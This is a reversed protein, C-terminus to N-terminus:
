ANEYVKGFTNEYEPDHPIEYDRLSTYESDTDCMTRPDLAQYESDASQTGSAGPRPSVTAPAQPSGTPPRSDQPDVMEYEDNSTERQRTARRRKFIFFAAVVVSVLLVASTISVPVAWVLVSQGHGAKTETSCYPTPIDFAGNKQCQLTVNQGNQCTVTAQQGVNVAFNGGHNPSVSIVNDIVDVHGCHRVGKYRLIFGETQQARQPGAQFQLSINSSVSVYETMSTGNLVTVIMQKSRYETIMLSDGDSIDLLEINIRIINQSSVQINWVCNQDLPYPEPFNPSYIVGENTKLEGGCAGISAEFVEMKQSGGQGGCFQSEDGGCPATCDTIPLRRSASDQLQNGCRCAFRNVVGAYRYSQTQERCYSLCQQVTTSTFSIAPGSLLPNDPDDQYCGLSMPVNVCRHEVRLYTDVDGIHDCPDGFFMEDSPELTCNGWSSSCRAKVTRTVDNRTFWNCNKCDGERETCMSLRCAYDQGYSARVILLKQFDPRPCGITKRDDKCIYTIDACSFRAVPDVVFEGGSGAEIDWIEFTGTIDELYFSSDKVRFRNFNAIHWYGNQFFVIERSEDNRYVPRRGPTQPGTISYTGIFLYPYLGTSGSLRVTPCGADTVPVLFGWLALELVFIALRDGTTRVM